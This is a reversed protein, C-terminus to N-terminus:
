HSSHNFNIIRVRQNHEISKNTEFKISGFIVHFLNFILGRIIIAENIKQVFIQHITPAKIDTGIM